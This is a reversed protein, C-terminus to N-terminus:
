RVYRQDERAKTKGKGEGVAAVGEVTPANQTPNHM